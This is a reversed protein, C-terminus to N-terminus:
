GAVLDRDTSEGWVSKGPAHSGEETEVCLVLQENDSSEEPRKQKCLAKKTERGAETGVCCRAGRAKKQRSTALFQRGLVKTEDGGIVKTAPKKRAGTTTSLRGNGNRRIKESSKIVVNKEAKGEMGGSTRPHTSKEVGCNTPLYIARTKKRESGLPSQYYEGGM